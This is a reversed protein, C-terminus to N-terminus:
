LPLGDGFDENMPEGVMLPHPPTEAVTSKKAEKAAKIAAKKEALEIAKEKKTKAVTTQKAM